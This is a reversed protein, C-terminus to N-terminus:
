ELGGSWWAYAFALMQEIDAVEIGRPYVACGSSSYYREHKHNMMGCNIWDNEVDIYIMKLCGSVFDQLKLTSILELVLRRGFYFGFNRETFKHTLEWQNKAVFNMLDAGLESLNEIQGRREYVAEHREDSILERFREATWINSDDSSVIKWREGVAPEIYGERQLKALVGQVILCDSVGLTTSIGELELGEPEQELVSLVAEQIQFVGLRAMQKPTM